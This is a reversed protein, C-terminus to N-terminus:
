CLLDLCSGSVPPRFGPQFQAIASLRDTIEQLKFCQFCKFCEFSKWIWHNRFDQGRSDRFTACGEQHNPKRALIFSQERNKLSKELDNHSFMPFCHKQCHRQVSVKWLDIFFVHKQALIENLVTSVFWQYVSWTWVTIEFRFSPDLGLRPLRMLAGSSVSAPFQSALSASGFWFRFGSAPFRFCSELSSGPLRVVAQSSVPLGFSLLSRLLDFGFDLFQFRPQLWIRSELNRIGSEPSQM